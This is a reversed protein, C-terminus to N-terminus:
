DGNFDAVACGHFDARQHMLGDYYPVFKVNAEGRLLPWISGHNNLLLDPIGDGNLDAICNEEHTETPNAIGVQAAIDTATLAPTKPSSSGGCSAALLTVGALVGAGLRVRRAFRPVADDRM